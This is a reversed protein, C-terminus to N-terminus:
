QAVAIMRHDGLAYPKAGDPGKLDIQEYGAAELMRVVEGTTHVHHAGSAREIRGETDTFV